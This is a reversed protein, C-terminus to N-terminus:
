KRPHLRNRQMMTLGLVGIVFLTTPEPVPSAIFSRWTGDIYTFGTIQGADNIGRVAAVQWDLGEVILDNLDYMQGNSYLFASGFQSDGYQGIVQGSSNVDYAKSWTGSLTGLGNMVGNSYLFAENNSYGVVEGSDNIAVGHSDGGLTGLDTMIGNDYIFARKENSSNDSTGTVQALQNIGRASTSVGGLTGIDQMLGNRYIFGRLINNSLGSDGVIYGNNNIGYAESFNGGLTGISKAQGSNPDDMLIARRGVPGTIGGVGVVHGLDNIAFARATGGVDSQFRRWVGNETFGGSEGGNFNISIGALEGSSNIDYAQAKDFGPMLGANVETLRYSLACCYTSALICSAITWVKKNM